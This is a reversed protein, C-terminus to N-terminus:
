TSAAEEEALAEAVVEELPLAQGATWAAQFATEGLAARARDLAARREDPLEPAHVRLFGSGIDHTAAVLRVGQREHGMRMALMGLRQVTYGSGVQWGLQEYHRLARATTGTARALEGIRM